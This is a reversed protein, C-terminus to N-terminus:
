VGRELILDVCQSLTLLLWLSDITVTQDTIQKSEYRYRIWTAALWGLFLATPEFRTL